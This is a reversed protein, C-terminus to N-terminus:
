VLSQYYGLLNYDMFAFFDMSTFFCWYRVVSCHVLLFKLPSSFLSVLLGHNHCYEGKGSPVVELWLLVFLSPLSPTQSSSSTSAFPLFLPLCNVLTAVISPPALCSVHLALYSFVSPPALVFVAPVQLLLIWAPSLGCGHICGMTSSISPPAMASSPRIVGPPRGVSCTPSSGPASISLQHGLAIFLIRFALATCIAWTVSSYAPNRFALTSGSHCLVWNSRFPTLPWPSPVLDVPRQLTWAKSAPVPSLPGRAMVGNDHCSLCTTGPLCVTWFLVRHYNWSICYMSNRLETVREQSPEKTVLPQPEGGATSEQQCKTCCPSPQSPEPALTPGAISITFKLWQEGAGVGRLVMDLCNCEARPTCLRPLQHSSRQPRTNQWAIHLPFACSSSPWRCLLEISDLFIIIWSPLPFVCCFLM